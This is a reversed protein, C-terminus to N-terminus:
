LDTDAQRGTSRGPVNTKCTGFLVEAHQLRILGGARNYKAKKM